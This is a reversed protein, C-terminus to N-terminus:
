MVISHCTTPMGTRRGSDVIRHHAFPPCQAVSRRITPTRREVGVRGPSVQHSSVAVWEMGTSFPDPRSDTVAGIGHDDGRDLQRILVDRLLGFFSLACVEGNVPPPDPNM